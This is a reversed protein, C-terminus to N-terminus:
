AVGGKGCFDREARRNPQLRGWSQESDSGIKATQPCGCPNDRRNHTIIPKRYFITLTRIGNVVWLFYRYLTIWVIGNNRPPSCPIKRRVATRRRMAESKLWPSEFLGGSQKWRRLRGDKNSDRATKDVFFYLIYCVSYGKNKASLLPNKRRVATRRRM